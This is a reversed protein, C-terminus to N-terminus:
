GPYEFKHAHGSPCMRAFQLEFYANNYLLGCWRSSAKDIKGLDQRSTHCDSTAELEAANWPQVFWRGNSLSYLVGAVSHIATEPLM